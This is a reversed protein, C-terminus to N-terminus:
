FPWRPLSVSRKGLYRHQLDPLDFNAGARCQIAHLQPDIKCYEWGYLLSPELYDIGLTDLKNTARDNWWNEEKKEMANM